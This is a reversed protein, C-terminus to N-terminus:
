SEKNSILKALASAFGPEFDPAGFIAYFCSPKKRYQREQSTEKCFSFM